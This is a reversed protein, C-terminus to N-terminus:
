SAPTELHRTLLGALRNGWRDAAGAVDLRKRVTVQPVLVFVPVTTRGVLRTYVAGSRRATGGVAKGRSDVRVNDAVLLSPRFRRYVFRLHQGTRREWGAPTMKQRGDAFKGAAPLPVALFLGLRSRIIAGEEYLSVLDPAKSWLFGAPKLSPQNPPYLKSRWTRALREGLGAGIIQQRLEAKLGDTAEAVAATVSKEAAVVEARILTAFDGSVHASLKM